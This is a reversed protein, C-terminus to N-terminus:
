ARPVFRRDRHRKGVKPKSARSNIPASPAVDATPRANPRSAFLRKKPPTSNSNSAPAQERRATKANSEQIALKRGTVDSPRHRAHADRLDPQRRPVAEPRVRAREEFDIHFRNPNGSRRMTARRLPSIGAPAVNFFVASPGRSTSRRRPRAHTAPSPRRCRASTSAQAPPRRLKRRIPDVGAALMRRTRQRALRRAVRRLQQSRRPSSRAGGFQIHFKTKPVAGNRANACPM